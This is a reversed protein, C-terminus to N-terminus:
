SPCRFSVLTEVHMTQPFMDYPQIHEPHFGFSKLIKADRALTSPNCSVYLIHSSKKALAQLVSEECGKRPPNVIAVDIHPLKDTINETRACIFEANAINNQKANLKADNIADAVVEVGIVKKAHQACLLSLTGVGCYADLVVKSADLEAFKIVDQYISQAQASNIQFFSQASIKFKLDLVKEEIYDQGHLTHFKQGLIRNNRTINVCSVVGKIRSDQEMIEAAVKKLLADDARSSILVVLAEQSFDATRILVHRLLGRNSKEVYPDIKYKQLLARCIKYVENGLTTQVPCAEIDIVTHTGAVYLGIQLDKATGAAPFSVKNRYNFNQDSPLCPLTNIEDFGGIRKFADAVKLTKQELQGEYSLHMIQCGGCRDYYTCSPTIRQASPNIVTLLEALGYNKKLMGVKASVRESPLAKEVFIRMGNYSGVGEGSSGLGDIDLEIIQGIALM